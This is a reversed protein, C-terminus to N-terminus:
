KKISRLYIMLISIDSPNVGLIRSAQGLNDPKILSLKEKAELSLNKVLEYKFNVGLPINELAKIKDILLYEKDIYGQYKIQIIAENIVALDYKPNFLNIVIEQNIEPRRIFEAISITNNIHVLNIEDLKPNFESPRLTTNNFYNILESLNKQYNIFSNKEEKSITNYKIAFPRLRLNANDMRLVLRHEASSTLMRYPETAGKTVLDDILVGIYADYRKLILGEEGHLKLHSNLGAIIGQGAAEEYGSTGNIQGACFLNAIKKTELTAKLNIPNIADYEIAYGYKKIKTDELGICSNVVKKQVMRPMSSSLGQPYTLDFTNDEPELFIQHIEKEKFRMIKDEISPCYRPGRGKIVGQYLPSNIINDLIIQRTNTTTKTLYCDIKKLNNEKKTRESFFLSNELDTQVNVKNFDITKTELRPPTGTKLRIVDFGLAKLKQSIGQSTPEGNPGSHQINSGILVRSDLYTGTTIVIAKSKAEITNNIIVGSAENNTILLDTVVGEFIDLAKLKLLEEKMLKVYKTKDIQMRLAWVAPGKSKNLLRTQLSCQDSLYGMIGGLADVEKVIVGKAAGGMSPNCPLNAMNNIDLTVLLVKNKLTALIHAAECGAHGAGVVIADYNKTIKFVQPM